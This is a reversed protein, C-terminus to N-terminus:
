NIQTIPKKINTKLHTDFLQKFYQYTPTKTGDPRILWYGKLGNTDSVNQLPLVTDEGNSDVTENCYIQWYFIYNVGADLFYQLKSKIFDSQTQGSTETVSKNYPYPGREAYGFEGIMLNNKGYMKSVPTKSKIYDLRQPLENLTELNEAYSSYSYLDNHTYPVIKDIVYTNSDAIIPVNNFEFANVVIVQHMGVDKQAQTVGEQRVNTWDILGKIAVSLQTANLQKAGLEQDAEWNQIIFTKNTNKYTELLYKTMNYMERYTRIKEDDNMGDKWYVNTNAMELAYVHFPMSFLIQFDHLKLQEIPTLNDVEANWSSNYPYKEYLSDLFVKISNSGLKIIEDAGELLYPRNTFYYKGAAHAVGLVDNIVEVTDTASTESSPANDKCAVLCIM